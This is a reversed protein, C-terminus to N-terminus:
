RPVKSAKISDLHKSIAVTIKHFNKPILNKMFSEIVTYVTDQLFGTVGSGNKNKWKVNSTFAIRTGKGGLATTFKTTGSCQIKDQFYHPEISWNCELAKDNWEARDTWVFMETNLKGTIVAPLKPHAKWINVIMITNPSSNKRTEVEIEDIDELLEVLNPLEDRMAHWVNELPHKLISVTKIEM